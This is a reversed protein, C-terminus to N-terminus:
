KSRGRRASRRASPVACAEQFRSHTTDREERIETLATEIARMRQGATVLTALNAHGDHVTFLTRAAETLLAPLGM